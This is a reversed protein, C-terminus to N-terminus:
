AAMIASRRPPPVAQSPDQRGQQRSGAQQQSQGPASRRGVLLRPLGRGRRGGRGRRLRLRGLKCQGAVRLGTKVGNGAAVPGIQRQSAQKIFPQKGQVGLKLDLVHQAFGIGYRLVRQLPGKDQTGAHAKGVAACQRRGVHGGAQVLGAGAGEVAGAKGAHGPHAGPLSGHADREGTGVAAQGRQQVHRHALSSPLAGRTGSRVHEGALRVRQDQLGPRVPPLPVGQGPLGDGQPADLLGVIQDPGEIGTVDGQHGGVQRAGVRQSERAAKFRHIIGGAGHKVHSEVRGGPGAPVRPQAPRELLAKVPVRHDRGLKGAM